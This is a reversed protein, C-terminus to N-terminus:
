GGTLLFLGAGLSACWAYAVRSSWVDVGYTPDSASLIAGRSAGVAPLAHLLTTIPLLAFSEDM